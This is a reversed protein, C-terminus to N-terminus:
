FLYSLTILVSSNSLGYDFGSVDKKLKNESGGRESTGTCYTFFPLIEAGFVFNESLLYNLGVVLNVGPEYLKRDDVYTEYDTKNRLYRFSVDLGYRLEFKEAMTKHFERGVALWVDANTRTETVDGSSEEYKNGAAVLTNFRWLSKATGVKYSLGFSDFDRTVLGIERQKLVEQAFLVCPLALLFLIFVQKKM